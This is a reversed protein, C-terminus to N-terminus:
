KGNVTQCVMYPSLCLPCWSTQQHPQLHQCVLPTLLYISLLSTSQFCLCSCFSSLNNSSTLLIFFSSHYISHSGTVIAVSNLFRCPILKVTCCSITTSSLLYLWSFEPLHLPQLFTGPTSVSWTLLAACHVDRHKSIYNLASARSSASSLNVTSIFDPLLPM